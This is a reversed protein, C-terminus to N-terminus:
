AATYRFDAYQWAGGTRYWLRVFVLSGDTPIGTVNEFLRTGLSGSNYIDSAGKATGVYMWWQAVATGNATWELTVTSGSLASGPAPTTIRPTGSSM